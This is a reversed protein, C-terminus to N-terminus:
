LSFDKKLKYCVRKEPEVPKIEPSPEVFSLAIIFLSFLIVYSLYVKKM